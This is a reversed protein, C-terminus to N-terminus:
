KPFKGNRDYAEIAAVALAAVRVLAYRPGYPFSAKYTHRMIFNQWDKLTNRDDNGIGGHKL